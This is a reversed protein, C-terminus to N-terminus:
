DILVGLASKLRFGETNLYEREFRWNPTIQEVARWFAASHNPHQLHCLEHVVVYHFADPKGLVLSLELAMVGRSSMSGWQTRMCKYLVRTPARGLTTCLGPLWRAVDAQAENLYFDRFARKLAPSAVPDKWSQRVQVRVGAETRWVRDTKGTHWTIELAEGRLLVHGSAFLQLPPLRSHARRDLHTAIWDLHAHIFQDVTRDAVRPPVTVRVGGDGITIRLRRARPHPTFRVEIERGDGLAYAATTRQVQVPAARRFLRLM